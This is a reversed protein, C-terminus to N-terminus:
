QGLEPIKVGVPPVAEPVTLRTLLGRMGPVVMWATPLAVIFAQAWTRGWAPMFGPGVEQNLLTLTLSLIASMALVMLPVFAFRAQRPTLM